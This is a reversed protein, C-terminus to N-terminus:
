KHNKAHETTKDALSPGDIYAMAIFTEAQEEHIGYVHCVSPHDLSAAAQAERILRAKVDEEGLTERSLFKLAVTRKLDLDEAKYVIGMGRDSAEWVTVVRAFDNPQVPFIPDQLEKLKHNM